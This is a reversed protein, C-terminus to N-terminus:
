NVDENVSEFREELSWDAMLYWSPISVVTTQSTPNTEFGSLWGFCFIAKWVSIPKQSAQKDQKEKEFPAGNFFCLSCLRWCVKASSARLQSMSM